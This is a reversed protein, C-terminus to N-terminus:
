KKSILCQYPATIGSYDFDKKNKYNVLEEAEDKRREKDKEEIEQHLEKYFQEQGEELDELASQLKQIQGKLWTKTDKADNFYDFKNWDFFNGQADRVIM